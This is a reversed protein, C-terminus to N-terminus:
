EFPDDDDYDEPDFFETNALVALMATAPTGAELVVEIVQRMGDSDLFWVPKEEPRRAGDFLGMMETDIFAGLDDKHITVPAGHMDRVTVYPLRDQLWRRVAALIIILLAPTM